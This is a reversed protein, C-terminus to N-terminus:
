EEITELADELDRLKYWINWNNNYDKWKVLYFVQNKIIKKNLLREIEYSSSQQDNDAHMSSLNNSRSRNYSNKDLVLKLQAISVVSYISMTFSLNLQYVLFDIKELIKFSRLRQNSLKHNFLESIIYDHHLRWYAKDEIRLQMITHKSDYITKFIMNSWSIVNEAEDRYIKRLRVIDKQSLDTLLSLTNKSNFKYLLQNSSLDTFASVLSNMTTQIYSLVLDFDKESNEIVFYRLALKVIQNTRKSQDNTQSHNAIFTLLEVDLKKFITRWFFFMFKSDRNSIITKLIEWYHEFLFSM